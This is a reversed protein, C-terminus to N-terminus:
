CGYAPFTCSYDFNKFDPRAPGPKSAKSITLQGHHLECIEAYWRSALGVQNKDMQDLSFFREKVKASLGNRFAPGTTQFPLPFVTTTIQGM